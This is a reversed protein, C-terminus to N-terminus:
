SMHQIFQSRLLGAFNCDVQLVVVFVRKPSEGAQDLHGSSALIEDYVRKVEHFIECDKVFDGGVRANHLNQMTGIGINHPQLAVKRNVNDVHKVSALRCSHQIEATPVTECVQDLKIAIMLGVLFVLQSIPSLTWEGLFKHIVGSCVRVIQQVRVISQAICQQCCWGRQRSRDFCIHQLLTLDPVFNDVAALGEQCGNLSRILNGQSDIVLLREIGLFGHLLNARLM